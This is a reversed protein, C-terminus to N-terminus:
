LSKAWVSRSGCDEGVRGGSYGPDCAQAVAGLKTESIM